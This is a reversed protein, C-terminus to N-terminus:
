TTENNEDKTDSWKGDFVLTNGQEFVLFRVADNGGAWYFANKIAEKVSVAEIKIPKDAYNATYTWFVWYTKM